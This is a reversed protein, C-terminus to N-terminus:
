ETQELPQDALTKAMIWAKGVGVRSLEALVQYGRAGYVERAAVSDAEAYVAVAKANRQGLWREAADLLRTAIGM